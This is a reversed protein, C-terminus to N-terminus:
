SNEKKSFYTNNNIRRLNNLVLGESSHIEEKTILYIKTNNKTTIHYFKYGLLLFLPNLFTSQSMFSFVFIIGYVFLLTSFDDIGLGVFLYGLYVALYEINASDIDICNKLEDKSLLNSLLLSFLSFIVPILLLGSGFAWFPLKGITFKEKILYMIVVWSTSNFTLIFRLVIKM